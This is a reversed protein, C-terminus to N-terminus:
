LGVQEYPDADVPYRRDVDYRIGGAERRLEPVPLYRRGRREGIPEFLGVKVLDNLDRSALNQSVESRLQRYTANRVAFGALSFSLVDVCRDPLGAREVLEEAHTWLLSAIETRRAVQVAQRHHATLCFRVWAGTHGTPSWAGRGVAALVRYYDQVHGGLYEEISSFEPALVGERPLVLTQLCRAMRGNGDKFPHVMVLNLHAMAAHVLTPVDPDVLNVQRVLECMLDPVEVAEPGIYVTRGTTEDHVYVLDPRWRGPWEGLDYHQMMFHLAKLTDTSLTLQPERALQLVYTMADRYGRVARWALEDAGLPEQDDLAAFADDVSVTYGEITNSGQVARALAVKRLLGSWRRPTAVLPRLDRHQQEVLAVVERDAKTLEDVVFLAM